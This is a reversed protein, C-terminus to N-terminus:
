SGVRAAAATGRVLPTPVNPPHDPLLLMLTILLISGSGAVEFTPGTISRVLMIVLLLLPVVAGNTRAAERFARTLLILVSTALLALGILGTGVLAEVWTGHISSTFVSGMKALVEFRSATLLGRGLLPSEKWVPLANSWYDLRGSWNSLVEPNEGRQIIPQAEHVIQTGWLIGLVLLILVAWFAAARARLALLVALGAVAIIAGTRYQAFVLTVFGVMMFIRLTGRSIMGQDAASLLRALSWLGLLAGVTGTGNASVLPFVGHLQLPFPSDVRHFATGPAALAGLWIVIATIATFWYVLSLIREGADHGTHRYAGAVVILGILLEIGRYATLPLNVSLPVGLFVVIVYACYLRFPRTSVREGARRDPATIALCGLLLALSVCAVRYLGAPDLPNSALSDADRQRFVLEAMLLLLVPLEVAAFDWRVRSRLLPVVLTGIVTAGGTALVLSARTGGKAVASGALWGVVVASLILIGGSRILESRRSRPYAVYSGRGNSRM